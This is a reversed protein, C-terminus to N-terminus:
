PGIRATSERNESVNGPDGPIGNSENQKEKRENLLARMRMSQVTVLDTDGARIVQNHVNVQFNQNFQQVVAIPMTLSVVEKTGLISDPTSSGRRKAANIRTLANVVEGPKFMMPLLSEMKEILADELRDYRSDRENHKSLNVYRLEAVAAAFEPDSVLQSIRSVSVGVSAAVIEASIGQGLLNLAREETSTASISLPNAGM